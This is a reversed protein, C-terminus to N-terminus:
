DDFTVEVNWTFKVEFPCGEFDIGGVSTSYVYREEGIYGHCYFLGRTSGYSQGHPDLGDEEASRAESASQPSEYIFDQFYEQIPHTDHVYWESDDYRYDVDDVVWQMLLWRNKYQHLRIKYPLLAYGWASLVSEDEDRLIVTIISRNAM